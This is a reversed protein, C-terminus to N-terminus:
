AFPAARLEGEEEGQQEPYFLTMRELLASQEKVAEIMQRRTDPDLKTDHLLTHAVGQIIQLPNAVRHRVLQQYHYLARQYEEGNAVALDSQEDAEAQCRDAEAQGHEASAAQEKAEAMHSKADAMHEEAARMHGEADTALADADALRVRADILGADASAIRMQARAEVARCKDLAQELRKLAEAIEASDPVGDVTGKQSAIM